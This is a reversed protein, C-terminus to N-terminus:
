CRISERKVLDVVRQCTTTYVRNWQEDQDLIINFENFKDKILEPSYNYPIAIANLKKLDIDLSKFKSIDGFKCYIFRGASSSTFTNEGIIFNYLKM